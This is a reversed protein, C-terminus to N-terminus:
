RMLNMQGMIADVDALLKMAAVKTEKSDNLEIAKKLNSRAEGLCARGTVPDSAGASSGKRLDILALNVYATGIPRYQIALEFHHKALDENEIDKFYVAGINVHVEAFMEPSVGCGEAAKVFFNYEKLAGEYDGSRQLVLGRQFIVSLPEENDLVYDEGGMDNSNINSSRQVVSIKQACHRRDRDQCGLRKGIANTTQWPTVFNGSLILCCSMQLIVTIVRM